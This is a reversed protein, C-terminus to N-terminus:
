FNKKFFLLNSMRARRNRFILEGNENSWAVCLCYFNEVRFDFCRRIQFKFQRRWFRNAMQTKPLRTSPSSVTLGNETANFNWIKANRARSKLLQSSIKSLTNQKPLIFEPKLAFVRSFDHFFISFFVPVNTWTFRKTAEACASIEAWFELEALNLVIWVNKFSKRCRL